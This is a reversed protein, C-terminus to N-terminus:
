LQGDSHYSGKKWIEIKLLIGDNDYKYLKGDWLRGDKFEGDMWLEQDKNYIKNYGNKKFRKGNTSGESGPSPATKPPTVVEPASDFQANVREKEIRSGITGDSNYMLEEKVDGNPYYRTAAGITVGDKKTYEFELKGNPHFYRIKGDEKGDNNFFKEQSVVGTDYYRRFVEVQKGSTFKGEEMMVGNEWFKTYPGNPRNNIYNGKLRPTKGDKHYKVWEGEKRNDTYGGEEIRGDDPYGKAPNMRGWITWMGQRGKDDSVNPYGEPDVGEQSIDFPLTKAMNDSAFTVAPLALTLAIILKKM